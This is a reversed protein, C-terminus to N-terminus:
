PLEELLRDIQESTVRPSDEPLQVVKLGQRELTPTPYRGAKRILGSVAQGLTVRQRRAQARALELADDEINLTTRM